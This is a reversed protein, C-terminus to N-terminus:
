YCPYGSQRAWENVDLVAINLTEHTFEEATRYRLVHCTVIEQRERSKLRDVANIFQANGILHFLALVRIEGNELRYLM